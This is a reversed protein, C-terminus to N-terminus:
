SMETVGSWVESLLMFLDPDNENIWSRSPFRDDNWDMVFAESAEAWFEFRNSFAYWHNNHRAHLRYTQSIKAKQFLVDIRRDITTKMVALAERKTMTGDIGLFLIMYAEDKVNDSIDPM